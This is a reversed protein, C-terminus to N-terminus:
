LLPLMILIVYNIKVSLVKSRGRGENIKGYLVNKIVLSFQSLENNLVSMLLFSPSIDKVLSIKWTEAMFQHNMNYKKLSPYEIQLIAINQCKRLISM